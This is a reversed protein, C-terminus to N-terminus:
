DLVEEYAQLLYQRQTSPYAVSNMHVTFFYKFFADRKKADREADNEEPKARELKGAKIGYVIDHVRAKREQCVAHPVNKKASKLRNYADSKDNIDKGLYRMGDEYKMEDSGEAYEDRSWLNHEFRPKWKERKGPLEDDLIEREGHATNDNNQIM